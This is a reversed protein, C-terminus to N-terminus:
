ILGYTYIAMMFSIFMVLVALRYAAKNDKPFAFLICISIFFVIKAYFFANYNTVYETLWLAVSFIVFLVILLVKELKKASHWNFQLFSLCFTALIGLIIKLALM